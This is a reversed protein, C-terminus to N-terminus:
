AYLYLITYNFKSLFLCGCSIIYRPDIILLIILLHFYMNYSCIKLTMLSEFNLHIMSNLKLDNIQNSTWFVFIMIFQTVENVCFNTLKPWKIAMILKHVIWHDHSQWVKSFKFYPYSIVLQMKKLVCLM